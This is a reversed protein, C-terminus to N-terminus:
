RGNEVTLRAVLEQMKATIEDDDDIPFIIKDADKLRVKWGQRMMGFVLIAYLGNVFKAVPTWAGDDLQEITYRM